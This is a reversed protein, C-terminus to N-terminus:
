LVMPDPVCISLFTRIADRPNVRNERGEPRTILGDSRGGKQTRDAPEGGEKEQAKDIREELRGNRDQIQTTQDLRMIMNVQM